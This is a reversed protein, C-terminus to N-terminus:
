YALNITNVKKTSSVTLKLLWILTRFNCHENQNLLFTLYDLPLEWESVRFHISLVFESTCLNNVNVTYYFNLCIKNKNNRNLYNLLRTKPKSKTIYSSAM